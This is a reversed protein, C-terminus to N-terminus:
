KQILKLPEYNKWLLWLGTFLMPLSLIMGMTLGLPFEPMGIDPSRVNELSIRILAYGTLFLGFIGGPKTYSVLKFTAFRLIFFLFLGELVAEYIQSPHRPMADPASPFVMGWQLHTPRGWLEGNIFNAIRGFFLGIPVCPAILDALRLIDIKYKRAYVTVVTIVGILGGHFSMGGKWIELAHFPNQTFETRLAPNVLMYFIIFGLRGGLVIGIGIWLILDELQRSDIPPPTHIWLRNDKLLRACYQWGLYIGVIYAMAYWRIVFPGIHLMVPDIQPFQM